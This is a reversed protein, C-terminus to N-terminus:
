PMGASMKMTVFLVIIKNINMMILWNVMKTLTGMVEMIM